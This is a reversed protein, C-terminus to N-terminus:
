VRERCSARGIEGIERILVLNRWLRSAYIQQQRSELFVTALQDFSILLQGFRNAALMDDRRGSLPQYIVEVDDFLLDALNALVQRTTVVALQRFQGYPWELIIRANVGKRDLQDRVGVAM